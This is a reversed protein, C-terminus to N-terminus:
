RALWESCVSIWAAVREFSTSLLAVLLGSRAYSLLIRAVLLADNM